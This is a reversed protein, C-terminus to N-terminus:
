RALLVPVRADEILDRTVGGLFIERVRSHAFGGIAILDAGDALAFQELVDSVSLGGSVERHVEVAFDHRALHRAIDSGPAPGHGEPTPEPDVLVVDVRAKTQAILLLERAARRAEGSADWGLVVHNIQELSSNEPLILVPGGLSLLVTEIIYRRLKKDDYANSPGVLVIDAYRGEMRLTGHAFGPDDAMGRVEVPVAAGHLTQKLQDLQAEQDAQMEHLALPYVDFPYLGVLGYLDRTLLKVALHAEHAEAFKVARKLFSKSAEVDDVVAVLDKLMARGEEINTRDFVRKADVNIFDPVGESVYTLAVQYSGLKPKGGSIKFNFQATRSGRPRISSEPGTSM